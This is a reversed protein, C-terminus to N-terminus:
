EPVVPLTVHSSAHLGAKMIETGDLHSKAIISSSESAPHGHGTRLHPEVDRDVNVYVRKGHILWREDMDARLHTHLREHRRSDTCLRPQSEM